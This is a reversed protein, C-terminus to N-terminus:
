MINKKIWIYIKKINNHSYIINNRDVIYVEYLHNLINYDILYTTNNKKILIHLNYHEILINKYNKKLLKYLYKIDEVDNTKKSKCNGM